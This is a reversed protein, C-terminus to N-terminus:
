MSHDSSSSAITTPRHRRGPTAQRGRRGSLTVFRPMAELVHEVPGLPAVKLRSRLAEAAQTLV